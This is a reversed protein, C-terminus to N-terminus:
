SAHTKNKKQKSKKQGKLKVRMNQTKERGEQHTNM